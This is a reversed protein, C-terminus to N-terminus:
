RQMATARFFVRGERLTTNLRLFIQSSRGDQGIFLRRTRRGRIMELGVVLFPFPVAM